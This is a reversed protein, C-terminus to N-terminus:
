HQESINSNESSKNARNINHNKEIRAVFGHIYVTIGYKIHPTETHHVKSKNGNNLM